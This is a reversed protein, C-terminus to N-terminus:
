LEFEDTKIEWRKNNLRYHFSFLQKTKLKATILDYIDNMTLLRRVHIIKKELQNIHIKSRQGFTPLSHYLLHKINQTNNTKDYDM